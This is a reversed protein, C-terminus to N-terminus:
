SLSVKRRDFKASGNHHRAAGIILETMDDALEDFQVEGQPSERLIEDLAAEVAPLGLKSSWDKLMGYQSLRYHSLQRFWSILLADDSARERLSAFYEEVEITLESVPAFTESRVRKGIMAFVRTLDALRGASGHRQDRVIRQLSKSHAKSVVRKYIRASRKEVFCLERLTRHFADALIADSQATLVAPEISVGVRSRHLRSTIRRVGPSSPARSTM